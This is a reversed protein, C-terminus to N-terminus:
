TNLEKYRLAAPCQIKTSPARQQPKRQTPTKQQPRTQILNAKKTQLSLPQVQPETTRTEKEHLLVKKAWRFFLFFFQEFSVAGM